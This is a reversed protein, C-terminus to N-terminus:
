KELFPTGVQKTKKLFPTYVKKKQCFPAGCRSAKKGWFPTGAQKLREFLHAL